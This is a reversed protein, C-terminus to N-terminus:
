GGSGVAETTKPMPRPDRATFVEDGDDDVLFAFGHADAIDSSGQSRLDHVRLQQLCVPAHGNPFAIVDVLVPAVNTNINGTDDPWVATVLAACVTAPSQWVIQCLVLVPTNLKINV